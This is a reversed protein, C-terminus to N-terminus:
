ICIFVAHVYNHLQKHIMCHLVFRVSCLFAMNIMVSVSKFLVCEVSNTLYWGPISMFWCQCTTKMLIDYISSLWLKTDTNLELERSPRM